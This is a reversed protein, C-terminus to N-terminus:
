NDEQVTKQAPKILYLEKIESLPLTSNAKGDNITITDKDEDLDKVTGQYIKDEIKIRVQTNNSSVYIQRLILKHQKKEIKQMKINKINLYRYFTAKSIKLKDCMESVSLEQALYYDMAKEATKKGEDSLGPKRGGKRGRAANLAPLTARRRYLRQINHLKTFLKQDQIQDLVSVFIVKKENLYDVLEILQLASFNLVELAAIKLTDGQKLQEALDTISGTKKGTNYIVEPEELLMSLSKKKSRVAVGDIRDCDGILEKQKDLSIYNSESIYGVIM